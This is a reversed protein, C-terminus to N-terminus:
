FCTYCVQSQQLIIVDPQLFPSFDARADCAPSATEDIELPRKVDNKRQSTLVKHAEPNPWAIGVYRVQESKYTDTSKLRKEYPILKWSKCGWIRLHTADPKEGKILEWPPISGTSSSINKYIAHMGYLKLGCLTVYVQIPFFVNCSSSSRVSLVNQTVTRKLLGALHQSFSLTTKNLILNSSLLCTCAIKTQGLPKFKTVTQMCPASKTWLMRLRSTRPLM